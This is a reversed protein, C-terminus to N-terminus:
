TTSLTKIESKWHQLVSSFFSDMEGLVNLWIGFNESERKARDLLLGHFLLCPVFLTKGSHAPIDELLAKLTPEQLGAYAVNFSGPWLKRLHDIVAEFADLAEPDKAGRGFLIVRDERDDLQKIETEWCSVIDEGNGVISAVHVMFTPYQAQVHAIVKPVDVKAHAARFLLLPLIIVQLSQGACDKLVDELTPLLCELWALRVPRGLGHALQAVWQKIQEQGARDRTGHALVVLEFHKLVNNQVFIGHIGWRPSDM